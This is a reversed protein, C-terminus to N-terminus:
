SKPPFPPLMSPWMNPRVTVPPSMLFPNGKFANEFGTIPVLDSIPVIDFPTRNSIPPSFGVSKEM